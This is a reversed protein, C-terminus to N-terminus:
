RGTVVINVCVGTARAEASIDTTRSVTTIM